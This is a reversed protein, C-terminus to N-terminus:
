TAVGTPCGYGNLEVSLVCQNNSPLAICTAAAPIIDLGPVQVIDRGPFAEALARAAAADFEPQDFEPVIIAGNAIYFNIYSMALRLGNLPNLRKEPQEVEIIELRRGRADTAQRLRALNDQLPAYNTMM